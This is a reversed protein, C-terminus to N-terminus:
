KLPPLPPAAGDPLPEQAVNLLMALMTYYGTLAILDIAGQEGFRDAVTKFTADSVGQTDHLETCFQYIAAEDADMARPRRGHLLDDAISRDLGAQLALPAHSLWELQATWKRATVMIAFETLKRPLVSRYRLYEGVKQTHVMLGPSRLLLANPGRPNLRGRPGRELEQVAARQADTM